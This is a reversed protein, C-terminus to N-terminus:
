ADVNEVNVNKIVIGYPNLDNRPITGLIVTYKTFVAPLEKGALIKQRDGVMTIKIEGNERVVSFRAPDLFYLQTRKTTEIAKLEAGMMDEDFKSLMPEVIFERAKIFQRRAVAPTYTAILNVFNTAMEMFEADNIEQVSYVGPAPKAPVNLVIKQSYFFIVTMLACLFTAPIQILALTRWLMAMDRYGEWLRITDNEKKSDKIRVTNAIDAARLGM